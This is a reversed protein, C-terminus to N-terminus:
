CLVVQCLKHLKSAMTAMTVKALLQEIEMAMTEFMHDSSSKNLLPVTDSTLYHVLTLLPYLQLRDNIMIVM